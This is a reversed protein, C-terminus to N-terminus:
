ISQSDKLREKITRYLMKNTIEGRKLMLVEDDSLYTGLFTVHKSKKQKPTEIRRKRGNALILYPESQAIVAFIEGKDRGSISEVLAGILSTM